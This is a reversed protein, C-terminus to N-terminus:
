VLYHSEKDDQQHAATAAATLVFTNLSIVMIQTGRGLKPAELKPAEKDNIQIISISPHPHHIV